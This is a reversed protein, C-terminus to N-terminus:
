RGPAENRLDREMQDKLGNAKVQAEGIQVASLKAELRDRFGLNEKCNSGQSIGVLTWAYATPESKPVAFGSQYLYALLICADAGGNSVARNAFELAKGYDQSVGKGRYYCFGLMTLAETSGSWKQLAREFLAAGKRMEGKEMYILGLDIMSSPEQMWVAVQLYQTEQARDGRKSFFTALLKAAYASQYEIATKLLGFGRRIDAEQKSEILVSGLGELGLNCELDIAKQFYARATIPDPVTKVLAAQGLCYYALGDGGIALTEIEELASRTLREAQKKNRSVGVGYSLARSLIFNTIPHETERCFSVAIDYDIPLGEGYYTRVALEVKARENGAFAAKQIELLELSPKFQREELGSPM